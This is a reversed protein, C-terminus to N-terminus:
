DGWWIWRYCVPKFGPQDRVGNCSDCTWSTLLIWRKRGDQVESMRCKEKVGRSRRIWATRVMLGVYVWLVGASVGPDWAWRPGLQSFRPSSQFLKGQGIEKTGGSWEGIYSSLYWGEGRGSVARRVGLGWWVRRVENVLQLCWMFDIVKM